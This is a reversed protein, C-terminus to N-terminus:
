PTPDVETWPPAEEAPEAPPEVPVVTGARTEVVLAGGPVAEGHVTAVARGRPADLDGPAARVVLFPPTGAPDAAEYLAVFTTGTRRLSRRGSWLRTVAGAVDPGRTTATWWRVKVRRRATGSRALYAATLTHQAAM